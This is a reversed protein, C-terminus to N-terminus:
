RADQGSHTSYSWQISLIRTPARCNAPRTALPIQKSIARPVETSLFEAPHSQLTRVEFTVEVADYRGGPSCGGNLDSPM